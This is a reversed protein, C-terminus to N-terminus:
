EHEDNCPRKSAGDDNTQKRKVAITRVNPIETAFMKDVRAKIKGQADNDILYQRYQLKSVMDEHKAMESKIDEEDDSNQAESKLKELEDAHRKLIESLEKYIEKAEDINGQLEAALGKLYHGEALLVLPVNEIQNLVELGEIADSHVQEWQASKRAIEALQFCITGLQQKDCDDLEEQQKLIDRACILCETAIDRDKAEAKDSEDDSNRNNVDESEQENRVAVLDEACEEIPAESVPVDENEEAAILAKAYYCFHEVLRVDNKGYEEVGKELSKSFFNAAEDFEEMVFRRKGEILLEEANLSQINQEVLKVQDTGNMEAM